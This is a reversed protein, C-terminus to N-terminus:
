NCIIFKLLTEKRIEGLKRSGEKWIDKRLGHEILWALRVSITLRGFCTDGEVSIGNYIIGVQTYNGPKRLLRNFNLLQLHINKMKIM